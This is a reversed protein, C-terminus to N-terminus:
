APLPVREEGAQVLRQAPETTVSLRAEAVAPVPEFVVAGPLGALSVANLVALPVARLRVPMSADEAEGLLGVLAALGAVSCARVGGLDLVLPRTDLRGRWELWLRTLSRGGRGGLRGAVAVVVRDAGDHVETVLGGQRRSHRAPRDWQVSQAGRLFQILGAVAAVNLFFLMFLLLLARPVRRRAAVALGGAAALGALAVGGLDFAAFVPWHPSLLAANAAALVLLYPAVAWRLVRHSVYHFRVLAPARQVAPALRTMSQWGGCVIRTRRRFEARLSPSSRHMAAAAPENLVRHGALALRLLVVFEDLLCDQPLPMYLARRFAVTGGSGGIVCGVASQKRKLSKEYRWYSGESGSTGVAESMEVEGTVGGVRPDEFHLTLAELAGTPLLTDADSLVILEGSGRAIAQNLVTPKGMRRTNAIVLWEPPALRAALAATADGSGDDVLIVQLLERPFDLARTNAIKEALVNSENHMPIILTTPRLTRARLPHPRARRALHSLLLPYGLYTYALVVLSVGWVALLLYHM